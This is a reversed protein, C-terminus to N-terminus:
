LLSRSVYKFVVHVYKFVVHVGTEGGRINAEDSLNAWILEADDRHIKSPNTIVFQQM